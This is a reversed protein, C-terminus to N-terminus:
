FILICMKPIIKNKHKCDLRFYCYGNECYHCSTSDCVATPQESYNKKDIIHRQSATLHKFGNNKYKKYLEHGYAYMKCKKSSKIMEASEKDTMNKSHCLRVLKGNNDFKYNNGFVCKDCKKM